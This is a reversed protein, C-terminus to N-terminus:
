QILMKFRADAYRKLAIAVFTTTLSEVEGVTRGVRYDDWKKELPFEMLLVKPMPWEGGADQAILLKTVLRDAVDTMSALLGHNVIAELLLASVAIDDTYKRSEHWAFYKIWHIARHYLESKHLGDLAMDAYFTIGTLRIFDISNRRDIGPNDFLKVMRSRLKKEFEHYHQYTGTMYLLRLLMPIEDVSEGIIFDPPMEPFTGDFPLPPKTLSAWSKIVHLSETEYLSGDDLMRGSIAWDRAWKIAKLSEERKGNNLLILAAIEHICGDDSFPWSGHVPHQLKILINLAKEALEQYKIYKFQHDYGYLFWILDYAQGEVYMGPGYVKAKNEIPHILKVWGGNDLSDLSPKVLREVMVDWAKESAEDALRVLRAPGPRCATLILIVIIVVINVKFLSIIKNM